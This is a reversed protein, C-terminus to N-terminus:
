GRRPRGGRTSSRAATAASTSAPVVDVGRPQDARRGLRAPAAVLPRAERRARAGVEHARPDRDAGHLPDHGRLARRDDWWRDKDPFDPTGEYIVRRPATASRGTSSTATAPSGASTPRAGTSTRRRAQPRLHLPPDDRRRRPLRRDHARDGEAERDHRSTYLLFLLDESDMPECPCTAPDDSATSARAVLPRPGDTMPVDNAPAACSSARAARRPADAM